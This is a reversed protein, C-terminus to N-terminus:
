SKMKKYSKEDKTAYCEAIIYASIKNMRTHQQCYALEHYPKRIYKSKNAIAQNLINDFTTM